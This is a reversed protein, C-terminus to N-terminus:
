QSKINTIDPFIQIVHSIQFLHDPSITSEVNKFNM